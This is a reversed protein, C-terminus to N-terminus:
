SRKQKPCATLYEALRGDPFLEVIKKVDVGVSYM